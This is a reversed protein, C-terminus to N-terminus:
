APRDPPDAHSEAGVRRAAPGHVPPSCCGATDFHVMQTGPEHGAEGVSPRAAGRRSPLRSRFHRSTGGCVQAPSPPGRRATRGSGAGADRRLTCRATRPPGTRPRGFRGHTRRCPCRDCGVTGEGSSLATHGLPRSRPTLYPEGAGITLPGCTWGRIASRSCSRERTTPRTRPGPGSLPSATM